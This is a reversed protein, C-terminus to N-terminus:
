RARNRQAARPKASGRDLRDTMVGLIATALATDGFVAGWEGVARNSTILMSGRENAARCSSSSCTGPTPSSRCTASSTSPDAAEAQRRPAVPRRTQGRQAGQRAARGPDAGARVAGFLEANAIFRGGAIERIQRKDISPQAAFDFSDLDRVFPFRALRISMEIRREDKRAIERGCFFSLAERITLERRGAEDILSDLQDRIATLKLRNLMAMLHDHEM